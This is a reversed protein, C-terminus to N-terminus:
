KRGEVLNIFQAAATNNNFCLNNLHEKVRTLEKQNDLIYKLSNYIGEENNECVWGAGDREVMEVASATKTTLIPIGLYKAEDFVMPAAEHFSPVLLLDANKMYRYPNYQNGYLIINKELKKSRIIAKVEYELPGSGVIHWLVNKNDKVLKEIVNITRIIGKESSIRAATFINFNANEYVICNVNSLKKIEDYNQCNLVTFVNNKLKPTAKIFNEKCSESVTAIADFKEYLLRSLWNNGHSLFDCHVFAIKRKAHVRDIVFSNCCGYLSHENSDQMFSISADYNTFKKQTSLIFRVPLRRDIIRAYFASGGRFFYYFVGIKKSDMQSVGLTKIFKNGEFVKISPPIETKYEGTNSFLFLDIDYIKRKDLEWLLNILSKQIGGLDLNNNVILLKKKGNMM